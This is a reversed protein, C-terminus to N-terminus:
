IKVNQYLSIYKKRENNKKLDVSKLKYYNVSM